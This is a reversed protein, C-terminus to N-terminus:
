AAGPTKVAGPTETEPVAQGFVNAVRAFCIIQASAAGADLLAAVCASSTAGSTLVDDVVVVHRGAIRTACGARVAIAEALVRARETRGLGGLRPTRRLRILGDVLLEGKGHAAIERALLAAQNFGRHWLRWRHLPVPVLLPPAQDPQPLPLRAAMLRGMLGALAIKRGHKFNLLLQRSAGNYLTASFVGAHRPPDAQCMPCQGDAARVKPSIPRQCTLCAPDGPFELDGLCESCLGGQEAVAVGCAPCRPPYVLDVLPKLGEALYSGFNMGACHRM